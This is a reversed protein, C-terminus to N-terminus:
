RELMDEELGCTVLVHLKENAIETDDDQSHKSPVERSRNSIRILIPCIRTM